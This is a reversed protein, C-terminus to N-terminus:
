SPPLGDQTLDAGGVGFNGRPDGTAGTRVPQDGEGARPQGSAGAAGIGSEGASPIDLGAIGASGTGTSAAGAGGEGSTGAIQDAPIAPGSSASPTSVMEVVQEVDQKQTGDATRTAMDGLSVIGVLKKRDDHSIVPIRRIQSDAMQIMVEDLPQDEFCWRVDPSMVEQVHAEQPSMGAATARITIDRDTIMGVLREGDCVPLVGVDLEGMLQAARQLSEQPSVFRADRSMIESVTQM